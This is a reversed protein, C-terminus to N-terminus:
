TRVRREGFLARYPAHTVGQAPGVERGATPPFPSPPCIVGLVTSPLHLHRQRPPSCAAV